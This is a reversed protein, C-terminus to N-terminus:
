GKKMLSKMNDLYIEKENGKNAIRFDYYKDNYTKNGTVLYGFVTFNLAKLLTDEDMNPLSSFPSEGLMTVKRGLLLAEIGVSSNLCYIRDCRDIFSIADHKTNDDLTSGFTTKFLLRSSPHLRSLVSGPNETKAQLLPDLWTCGNNYLLVNTDTEVQMGVGAKYQRNKNHLVKILREYNNPSIVKLLEERSLIPVEDAIKLFDNFRENFETDGNVGSFDLYFTSIYTSPRFPGTEHHFTYIGHNLLTDRFCRNNVWTIGAKIKSEKLVKEIVSIEEEYYNNVTKILLKSPVPEKIYEEPKKMVTCKANDIANYLNGETKFYELAKNVEWRYKPSYKKLYEESVIYHTKLQTQLLCYFMNLYWAKASARDYHNLYVLYTM